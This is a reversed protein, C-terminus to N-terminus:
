RLEILCGQELNRRTLKVVELVSMVHAKRSLVSASGFTQEM